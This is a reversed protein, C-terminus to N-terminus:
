FKLSKLTGQRRAKYIQGREDHLTDGDFTGTAHSGGSSLVFREPFRANAPLRKVLGRMALMEAMDLERADLEDVPLMHYPGDDIKQLVMKAGAGIDARESIIARVLQRLAEEKM